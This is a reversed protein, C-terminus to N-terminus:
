AAVTTGPTNTTIRGDIDACMRGNPIRVSKGILVYPLQGKRILTYVTSKCVGLKQAAESPRLLYPDSV